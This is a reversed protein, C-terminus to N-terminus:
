AGGKGEAIPKGEVGERGKARVGTDAKGTVPGAGVDGSGDTTEGTGLRMRDDGGGMAEAVRLLPIDLEDPRRPGRGGLVDADPLGTGRDEASLGAGGGRDIFRGPLECRGGGTAMGFLSPIIHVLHLIWM